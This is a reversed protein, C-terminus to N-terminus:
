EGNSAREKMHRVDAPKNLGKLEPQRPDQRQLMHDKTPFFITTEAPLVPKTVKIVPDITLSTVEGKGFPKVNVKLTLSGGKGSAMVSEVLEAMGTTLETIQDGHMERLVDVFTREM